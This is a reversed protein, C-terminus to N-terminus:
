FNYTVSIGIRIATDDLFQKDRKLRDVYQDAEFQLDENLLPLGTPNDSRIRLEPDLNFLVGAEAQFSWRNKDAVSRWGLGLYPVLSRYSTEAKPQGLNVGAYYRGNLKYIAGAEPHATWKSAQNFHMIGSSIFLGPVVELTKDAFLGLSTRKFSEDFKVHNISHKRDYLGHEIRTRLQWDPSIKWGTELALSHRSDATYGAGFNVTDPQWDAWTPSSLCISLLAFATRINM